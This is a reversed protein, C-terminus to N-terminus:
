RAPSGFTQAYSQRELEYCECAAAKLGRRSLVTVLGRKYRILGRAQMASAAATVGVRRVGLMAALGEHTVYFHKARARDETLLLWRALRAEIMHFKACAAAQALQTIHFFAYRHLEHQLASSRKLERRFTDADMRLSVGAGQVVARLPSADMGLSLPVGFMGENGVLGVELSAPTKGGMLLSIFGRTPFHAHRIQEGPVYLVEALTLEVVECGAVIRKGDRSPLVDLLQNVVAPQM